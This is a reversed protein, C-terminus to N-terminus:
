LIKLKILGDFIGPALEKLKNEQLYRRNIEVIGPVNFKTSCTIIVTENLM